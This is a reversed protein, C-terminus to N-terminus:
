GRISKVPILILFFFNKKPSMGFRTLLNFTLYMVVSIIGKDKTNCVLFLTNLYHEVAESLNVKIVGLHVEGEILSVIPHDM